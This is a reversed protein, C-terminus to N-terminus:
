YMHVHLLGDAPLSVAYGIISYDKDTGDKFPALKGDSVVLAVGESWAPRSAPLASPDAHYGDTKAEHSGYIVTVKKLEQADPKEMGHFIPRVRQKQVKLVAGGGSHAKVAEGGSIEVFRGTKMDEDLSSSKVLWSPRRIADLQQTIEYTYAM